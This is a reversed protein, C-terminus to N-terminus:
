FKIAVKRTLYRIAVLLIVTAAIAASFAIGMPMNDVMALWSVLPLDLTKRLFADIIVNFLIAIPILVFMGITGGFRYFGSGIFLGLTFYVFLNFSFLAFSLILNSDPSTYPAAILLQILDGIFNGDFDLSNISSEAYSIDLFLGLIYKEITSIVWSIPPIIISIAASSFLVGIFYDKRTVGNEVLNSLFTIFLLGIIFIFINGLVYVVNYFSDVESSSIAGIISKVINIILTIGLFWVAWMALVWFLDEAVKFTNSKM